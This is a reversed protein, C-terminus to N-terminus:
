TREAAGAPGNSLHRALAAANLLPDPLGHCAMRVKFFAVTPECPPSGFFLRDAAPHYTERMSQCFANIWSASNNFNSTTRLTPLNPADYRSFAWDIIGVKVGAGTMGENTSLNRWKDVGHFRFKTSLDSKWNEPLEPEQTQLAAVRDFRAIIKNEWDRADQTWRSRTMPLGPEDTLPIASFQATGFAQVLPVIQAVPLLLVIESSVWADTEPLVYVERASLWSRIADMQTENDTKVKLLVGDANAYLAMLGAQSAGIGNHHAEVIDNLLDDLGAHDEYPSGTPTWATGDSKTATVLEAGYVDSRQIVTLTNTTALTWTTGEVHTAAISTMYDDLADPTSTPTMQGPADPSDEAPAHRLEVTITAPVSTGNAHQQLLAWLDPELHATNAGTDIPTM